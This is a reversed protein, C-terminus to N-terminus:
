RNHADNVIAEYLESAVEPGHTRTRDVQMYVGNL